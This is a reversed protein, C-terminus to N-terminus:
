IGREAEVFCARALDKCILAQSYRDSEEVLQGSADPFLRAYHYTGPLLEPAFILIDGEIAASLFGRMACVWLQKFHDLYNVEGHAQPPRAHLDASIPVQMCGPSAIRGHIFGTRTFISEMFSLKATWDGYVLEQGCYYHSFDGNFRVEPFKRTIQVTRWLDQTITARHTEIFVPLHHKGSALLIAEVLRFIEDEDELGCGAHVTICQDGRRAHSAVIPEADAPTNIRDLGCHSLPANEQPFNDAALQVGQFGDFKLRQYCQPGELGPWVTDARLAHLTQLNLYVKLRPAARTGDNYYGSRSLM